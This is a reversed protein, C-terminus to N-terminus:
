DLTLYPSTGKVITEDSVKLDEKVITIIICENM